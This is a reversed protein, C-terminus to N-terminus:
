SLSDRRRRVSRAVNQLRERIRGGLRQFPLVEFVDRILEEDTRLLGDSQIWEAIQRLERDSYQDITDRVPLLPRSGRQRAIPQQPVQTAPELSDPNASTAADADLLDATCVAEEYASVARQTEQERSYFWDTSWIRHFRWGLRQLHAQRLRDRDRATASSHYSAGDCEIALVPRGPKEPHMAVLDIRYRSAGFQPRTRICRAELADRM